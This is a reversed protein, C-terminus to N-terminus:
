NNCMIVLPILSILPLLLISPHTLNSALLRGTLVGFSGGAVFIASNSLKGNSFKITNEAGDVHMFANGICIVLLTIIINTKTYLFLLYGILLFFIGILGNNIRKYKDSIYGILSQPVFAFTDYIFPILWVIGSKYNSYLFFFCLVEVVYHVYFYIIGIRNKGM